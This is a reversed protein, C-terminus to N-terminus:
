GLTVFTDGDATVVADGDATVLVGNPTFALEIQLVEGTVYQVATLSVRLLAAPYGLAVLDHVPWESGAAIDYDFAGEGPSHLEYLDGEDETITPAFLREGSLRYLWVGPYGFDIGEAGVLAGIHLHRLSRIDIWDDLPPCCDLILSWRYDEFLLRMDIRMGSAIPEPDDDFPPPEIWIPRHHRAFVGAARNAQLIPDVVPHQLASELTIVAVNWRWTDQLYDAGDLVSRDLTMLRKWAETVRAPAGTLDEVAQEIALANSKPRVIEALIRGTYAEDGETDQRRVGYYRGWLDAIEGRSATMVLQELLDASVERMGDLEGSVAHFYSWLLSTYALIRGGHTAATHGTAPILINASRLSIPGNDRFSVAYGPRAEIDSALAGITWATLDYELPDHDDPELRLVGDAVSWAMHGDDREVVFVLAPEPDADFVSHLSELLDTLM